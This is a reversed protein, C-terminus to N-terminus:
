KIYKITITQPVSQNLGAQYELLQDNVYIQTSLASGTKISVETEASLDFEQFQANSLTGQYIEQQASNKVSVWATGTSAVKLKFTPANTLEYTSTKKDPGIGTPTIVQVPKEPETGEIEDEDTDQEEESDENTTSDPTPKKESEDVFKEGSDNDVIPGAEDDSYHNFFSYMLAVGVLVFLILLAKPVLKLWKSNDVVTTAQAHPPIAGVAEEELNVAPVDGEYEMMLKDVDLDVLEAYQKVFVRVYFKGPLIEFQDNEIAQLFRKQIKTQEHIYELSFGKEERASKLTNGLSM